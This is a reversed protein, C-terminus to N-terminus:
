QPAAAPNSGDIGLDTTLHKVLHVVGLPSTNFTNVRKERKSYCHSSNLVEIKYDPTLHKVL